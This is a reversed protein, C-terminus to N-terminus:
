VSTVELIQYWYIKSFSKKNFKDIYDRAISAPKYRGPVNLKIVSETLDGNRREKFIKVEIIKM